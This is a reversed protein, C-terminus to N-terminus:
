LSSKVETIPINYILITKSAFDENMLGLSANGKRVKTMEAVSSM